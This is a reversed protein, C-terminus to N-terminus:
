FGGGNDLWKLETQNEDLLKVQPGKGFVHSIRKIIHQYAERKDAPMANAHNNLVGLLEEFRDYDFQKSAQDHMGDLGPKCMFDVFHQQFMRTLDHMFVPNFVIENQEVVPRCCYDSTTGDAWRVSFTVSFTEIPYNLRPQRELVISNRIDESVPYLDPPIITSVISVFEPLLEDIDDDDLEESWHKYLNDYWDLEDIEDVVYLEQLRDLMLDRFEEIANGHQQRIVNAVLGVFLPNVM